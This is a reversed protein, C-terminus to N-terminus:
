LHRALDVPARRAPQWPERDDGAQIVHITKWPLNLVGRVATGPKIYGFRDIKWAPAAHHYKRCTGYRAIQWERDRKEGDRDRRQEEKFVALFAAIAEGDSDFFGYWEDGGWGSKDLRYFNRAM